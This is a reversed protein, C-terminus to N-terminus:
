HQDSDVALDPVVPRNKPEDAQAAPGLVALWCVLAFITRPTRM